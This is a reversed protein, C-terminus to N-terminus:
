YYPRATVKELAGPLIRKQGEPMAYWVRGQRVEARAKDFVTCVDFIDLDVGVRPDDPMFYAGVFQLASGARCRPPARLGTGALGLGHQVRDRATWAM